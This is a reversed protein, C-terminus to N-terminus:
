PLPIPRAAARLKDLLRDGVASRQIERAAAFANKMSKERGALFLVGALNLNIVDAVPGKEGALVRHIKEASEQPGSATLEGMEVVELGLDRPNLSWAELMGDERLHLGETEQTLSIEDEGNRGHVILARKRGLLKLTQAIPEILAARPVGVLQHTPLAPNSLPGALNFITRVGLERRIPAAHRMAPHYAQAFLFCFHHESLQRAAEAPALDIPLGLAELVDATGSKSSVARNGHKAVPIGAAAALLATATSINVTGHMDGGTGCTDFLNDHPHDYPFVTAHELMAEVVVRLHEAQEGRIRLGMLLAAIETPKAEGRMIVRIAERLQEPDPCLQGSGPGEALEKLIDNLM